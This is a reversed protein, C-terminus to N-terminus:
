RKPSPSWTPSIGGEPLFTLQRSKKGGIRKIHISPQKGRTLRYALFQGEPSWTPEEKSGLGSTFDTTERTETNYIRIQFNGKVMSTYAIKDGDPSWAPNDNYRSKFTIRKVGARDGRTADMIYIQPRGNGSRDSTFAIKKGDPSWTPSTDINFHRTLRTLKRWRNLVYIESNSDKSLVLSIKTGDPSWAPASNIGPLRLLPRRHRRSNPDLLILDPNHEKYSTFVIFRGNPSWDPSLIVSQENTLKQVNAGDFDVAYMEKGDPTRSLFALRTEAVGRKGTLQEMVEDAFRHMIKRMFRKKGQYRKGVLFQENVVDFLRFVFKYKDGSLSKEYQGKILWQAGLQNWAAYNVKGTQAESKELESYINPAVPIFLEFLRLDNELINHSKEAFSEDMDGGSSVFHPVAINVESQTTKVLDLFISEESHVPYAQFWLVLGGLVSIFVSKIKQPCM